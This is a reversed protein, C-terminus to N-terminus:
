KKATLSGRLNVWTSALSCVNRATPAEASNRCPSRQALFQAGPVVLRRDPAAIAIRQQLRRLVDLPQEICQRWLHGQKFVGLDAAQLAQAVAADAGAAGMAADLRPLHQNAEIGENGTGADTVAAGERHFEAGAQGPGQAVFFELGKAGDLGPAHQRGAGQPGRHAQGRIAPHHDAVGGFVAGVVQRGAFQRGPALVMYQTQLTTERHQARLVDLVGPGAVEASRAGPLRIEGLDLLAHEGHGPAVAGAHRAARKHPRSSASSADPM